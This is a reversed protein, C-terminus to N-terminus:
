FAQGASFVVDFDADNMDLLSLYDSATAAYKAQYHGLADRVYALHPEQWNELM